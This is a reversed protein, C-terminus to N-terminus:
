PKTVIVIRGKFIAYGIVVQAIVHAWVYAQSGVLDPLFLRFLGDALLFGGCVLISFGAVWRAQCASCRCFHGVWNIFNYIM